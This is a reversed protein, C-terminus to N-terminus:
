AIYGMNQKYEVMWDDNTLRIKSIEHSKNTLYPKHKIENMRIIISNHNM